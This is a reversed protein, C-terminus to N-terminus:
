KYYTIFSSNNITSQYMWGINDWICVKNLISVIIGAIRFNAYADCQLGYDLKIKIIDIDNCDNECKINHVCNLYNTVEIDKSSYTFEFVSFYIRENESSKFKSNIPLLYFFKNLFIVSVISIILSIGYLCLNIKLMNNTIRNELVNQRTFHNKALIEENEYLEHQKLIGSENM